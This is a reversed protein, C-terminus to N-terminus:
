SRWSHAIAHRLAVDIRTANKEVAPEMFPQAPTGRKYISRAIVFALDEQEMFPDDPQIRATKIWDLISQEPPFGGPRTGEEVARAYNTDALVEHVLMSVKRPKISEAMQSTNKAALEKADNSIWGAGKSLVADIKPQNSGLGRIVKRIDPINHDIVVRM